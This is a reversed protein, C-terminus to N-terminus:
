STPEQTRIREHAHRDSLARLQGARRALRDALPGPVAESAAQQELDRAHQLLLDAIRRSRSSATM